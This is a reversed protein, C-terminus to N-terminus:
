RRQKMQDYNAFLPRMHAERWEQETLEPTGDSEINRTFECNPWRGCGWFPEWEQHPKPRRLVMIAGCKACFPVPKMRINM